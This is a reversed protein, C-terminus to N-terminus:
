AGQRSRFIERGARVGVVCQRGKAVRVKDRMLAHGCCHTGWGHGRGMRKKQCGAVLLRYSGGFEGKLNGSEHPNVGKREWKGQHPSDGVNRGTHLFGGEDGDKDAGDDPNGALTMRPLFRLNQVLVPRLMFFAGGGLVLVARGRRTGRVLGTGGPLLGLM